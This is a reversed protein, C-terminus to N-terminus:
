IKTKNDQLILINFIQFLDACSPYPRSLWVIKENQEAAKELCFDFSAESLCNIETRSHECFKL